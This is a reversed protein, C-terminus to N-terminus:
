GISIFTSILPLLYKVILSESFMNEVSFFRQLLLLVIILIVLALAKVLGLFFGLAHDLSSITDNNLIGSIISHLIRIGLSSLIFLALFTRFFHKFNTM